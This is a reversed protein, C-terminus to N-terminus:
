LGFAVSGPNRAERRAAVDGEREGSLRLDFAKKKKRWGGVNPRVKDVKNRGRREKEVPKTRGLFGPATSRGNSVARHRHRAQIGKVVGHPFGLAVQIRRGLAELFAPM